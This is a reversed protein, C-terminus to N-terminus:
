AVEPVSYARWPAIPSRRRAELYWDTNAVGVSSRETNVLIEVTALGDVVRWENRLKAGEAVKIARGMELEGCFDAM